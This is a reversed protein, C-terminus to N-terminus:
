LLTKSQSCGSRSIGCQKSISPSVLTEARSALARWRSLLDVIRDSYREYAKAYRSEDLGLPNRYWSVDLALTEYTLVVESFEDWLKAQAQLVAENKAKIAERIKLQQEAQANLQNIFIPIIIGSLAATLLLLVVKEVFSESTLARNLVGKAVPGPTNPMGVAQGAPGGENGSPTIESKM